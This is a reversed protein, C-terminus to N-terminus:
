SLFSCKRYGACLAAPQHSATLGRKHLGGPATGRVANLYAAGPGGSVASLDPQVQSTQVTLRLHFLTTGRSKGDKHVCLM